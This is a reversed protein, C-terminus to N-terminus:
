VILSRQSPSSWLRLLKRKGQSTGSLKWEDEEEGGGEKEEEEEKKGKNKEHHKTHFGPDQVPLAPM